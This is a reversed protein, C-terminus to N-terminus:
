PKGAFNCPDVIDFRRCFTTWKATLGQRELLSCLKVADFAGAEVFQNIRIHDKPRGINLATAIVHEATLIRTPVSAQNPIELDIELADALAEADLASAIPLFQVPWHDILIGEKSFETYGKSSLYSIIPTLTVLGSPREEGDFSVIVDLDETITPEIYNYAAVAGGIAYAVIVRDAVMQNLVEITRKM